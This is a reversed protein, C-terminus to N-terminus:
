ASRCRCERAAEVGSVDGRVRDRQQANRGRETAAERRFLVQRSPRRHHEQAVSEPAAPEAGIGPDDPRVSIRSSRGVVTM